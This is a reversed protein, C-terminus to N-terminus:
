KDYVYRISGFDPVIGGEDDYKHPIIDLQVKGIIDNVDILGVARSRSDTSHERNDGMVFVKGEPIVGNLEEAPIDGRITRGQIYPEDLKEGDVYVANNEYDMVIEQGSVAIIRKVLPKDLNEGRSIVVIDGNQPTYGCIDAFIVRDTDILTTEMSRGDVKAIRFCFTWVLLVIVMAKILSGAWEFVASVTKNGNLRVKKKHM